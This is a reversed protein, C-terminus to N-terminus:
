LLRPPRWIADPLRASVQSEGDAVLLYPARLPPAPFAAPLVSLSGTKCQQGLKCPTGHDSQQSTDDGMQGSACCPHGPAAAQATPVAQIGCAEPLGVAAWAYAPLAVILLLALLRRFRYM